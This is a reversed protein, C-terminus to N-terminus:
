GPSTMDADPTYASDVDNLVILVSIKKTDVAELWVNLIRTVDFWVIDIVTAAFPLPEYKM